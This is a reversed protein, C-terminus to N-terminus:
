WSCWTTGPPALVATAPMAVSAEYAGAARHLATTGAVDLLLLEPEDRVLADHVVAGGDDGVRPRASCRGATARRRRAPAAAPVEFQLTMSDRVERERAPRRRPDIIKPRLVDNSSDLYEPSFAELSLETPYQVNSFNYYIHPNSGGVLLWGDRLLIASSHYLRPIDTSSQEEFRDGPAHDPRYM